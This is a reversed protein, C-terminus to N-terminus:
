ADTALSARAGCGLELAGDRDQPTPDDATLEKTAAAGVGVGPRGM